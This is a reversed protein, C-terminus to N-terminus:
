RTTAASARGSWGTTTSGTRGSTARDPRRPHPRRADRWRSRLVGTASRSRADRRLRRAVAVALFTSAAGSPRTATRSTGARPRRDPELARPAPAPRARGRGRRLDGRLVVRSRRTSTPTSPARAFARPRDHRDHVPPHPLRRLRAPLLGGVLMTRSALSASRDRRARHGAPRAARNRARSSSSRRRRPGRLAALLVVRRGLPARTRSRGARRRDRLWEAYHDIAAGSPEGTGQFAKLNGLMHLSWTPSSSRRRHDRRDGEQRDVLALGRAALRRAAPATGREAPM